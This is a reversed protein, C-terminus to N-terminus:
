EWGPGVMWPQSWRRVTGIAMRVILTANVVTTPYRRVM